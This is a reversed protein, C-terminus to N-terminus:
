FFGRSLLSSVRADSWRMDFIIVVIHPNSLVSSCSHVVCGHVIDKRQNLGLIEFDFFRLKPEVRILREVYFVFDITAWARALIAIQLGYFAFSRQRSINILFSTSKNFSMFDLNSLVNAYIDHILQIELTM